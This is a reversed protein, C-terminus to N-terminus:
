DDHEGFRYKGDWAWNNGDLHSVNVKAHFSSFQGAGGSFTVQGLGTTFDLTVHGLAYNGPEVVLVVDSDLSTAAAAQLYVVRSGARIADLNSSTITCFSDALGTFQSCEKTVHLDGRRPSSGANEASSAVAFAGAVIVALLLGFIAKPNFRRQRQSQMKTM